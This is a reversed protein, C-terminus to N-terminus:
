VSGANGIFLLEQGVPVLEEVRVFLVGRGNQITVEEFDGPCSTQHLGRVVGLLRGEGDRVPRGLLTAPRVDRM